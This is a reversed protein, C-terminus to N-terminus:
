NHLTGANTSKPSLYCGITSLKESESRIKSTFKVSWVCAKVNTVAKIDSGDSYSVCVVTIEVNILVM